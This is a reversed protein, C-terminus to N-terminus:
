AEALRKVPGRPPPRGFLGSLIGSSVSRRESGAVSGERALPKRIAQPSQIRTTGVTPIVRPETNSRNLPARPVVTSSSIRRDPIPPFWSSRQNSATNSRQLGPRTAKGGAHSVKSATAPRKLDSGRDMHGRSSGERSSHHRRRPRQDTSLRGSHDPSRHAESAERYRNYSAAPSYQRSSFSRSTVEEMDQSVPRSTYTTRRAAEDEERRYTRKKHRHSEARAEGSPRETALSSHAQPAVVRPQRMAPPQQSRDSSSSSSSSSASTSEESSKSSESSEPESESIEWEVDQPSGPRTTASRADSQGSRAAKRPTSSTADISRAM